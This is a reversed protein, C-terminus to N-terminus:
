HTSGAAESLLTVERQDPDPNVWQQLAVLADFHCLFMYIGAKM